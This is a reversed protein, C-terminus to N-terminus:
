YRERLYIYPAKPSGFRIRAIPSMTYGTDPLAGSWDGQLWPMTALNITLDTFGVLPTTQDFVFLSGTGNALTLAPSSALCFANTPSAPRPNPLFCTNTSIGGSTTAGATPIVTMSDINNLLWRTGNFYEARMDVKIPLLESGYVNILRLQGARIPTLGEVYGSSTITTDSTEVARIKLPASGIRVELPATEKDNFTYSLKYITAATTSLTAVGDIFQTAPIVANAFTGLAASNNSADNADTLTTERAFAGAYNNTTVGATNMATVITTFPQGSYTFSGNSPTVTTTFHHPYFRGFNGTSAAAITEGAPNSATPLYAPPTATFTFVGVESVTQNVSAWGNSTFDITDVSITGVAGAAPAVLTHTLDIASLKFNPTTANGNCLDTDGNSQWAVAKLTLNFTDGAAKEKACSADAAACNALDTSYLCLGVPKVVFNGSSGMQTTATTKRVYLEVEGADAYNFNFPGVSPSGTAFVQNDSATWGSPTAGNATCLPLATSAASFSAQIGANTTPNHCSLGFQMGVTTASSASLQTAVNSANVATIYVNASPKASTQPSWTLLQCSGTGVTVGNTCAGTTFVYSPVFFGDTKTATNNATATDNSQGSVTASNTISNPAGVNIQATLTLTTTANVALSTNQTCAVVQGTALCSWGVSGAVFTLGTPLTDIITIPGPEVIPGHNNVTMTYSVLESPTFSGSSTMTIGLDTAGVSSGVCVDDVHWYDQDFLGSGTLLSFRLKFGSWKANAPLTYSNTAPTATASYIQGDTGGGLFTTLTTWTGANNLYDVKLSKGTEPYDSNLTNPTTATGTGRKVWFTITNNGSNTSLDTARTTASVTNWRLDMNHAGNEFYTSGIRAGGTGSMSWRSLDGEFTDCFPGTYTTSPIERLSVNDVHWYDYGRVGAAGGNTAGSGSGGPQAFRFQFTAHFADDPLDIVPTIIEGPADDMPYQAIVVWTGASNKYQVQFEEGSTPTFPTLTVNCGKTNNSPWESFCDSGRRLWFSLQAGAKGVLSIVPSTVTVNTWRTFMSRTANARPSSATSFPPIDSDIGACGKNGTVGACAGALPAVVWAGYGTATGVAGATNAGGVVVSREFDDCFLMGATCTAPMLTYSQGSFNGNGAGAGGLPISGAGIISDNDLLDLRLTGVVATGTNATVTWTTGGGTVSSISAGTTGSGQFLSFDSSDVGTVSASFVVTWLVATNALTPNTSTTSISSVVTAPCSSTTFTADSGNTTGGSNVGKARFHYLTNCTLGALAASVASNTAAAALPSGTATISSGYSTNLGYDFTVTTSAGNSSVTGNLTTGTTTLASAANTTVTPPLTVWNLVVQGAAGNGGNRDTGNTAYGAGGGGGATAGSNGTGRSTLGAGGNGGGATGGTGATNGSANGGTGTSGAGGGGAGGTGTSVGNSGNGGAFVTTGTGGTSSGAGGNGGSNNTAAVLGGAGGKAVVSTSAFTSDGGAPGNGNGAIGGAGVIVTYNTGPVVTLVKKAYQGGAGGGGKAPNGTAGGGAGGGGWAEVTVSTVGVPAQWTSTGATTYTATEARSISVYFATTLGWLISLLTPLVFYSQLRYVKNM